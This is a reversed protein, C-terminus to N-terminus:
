GRREHLMDLQHEGSRKNMRLEISERSKRGTWNGPTKLHVQRNSEVGRRENEGDHRSYNSANRSYNSTNNLRRKDQDQIIVSCGATGKFERGCSPVMVGGVPPDRSKIYQDSEYAGEFGRCGENEDRTATHVFEKM